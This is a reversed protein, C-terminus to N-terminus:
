LTTAEDEEVQVAHALYYRGLDYEAEEDDSTRCLQTPEIGLWDCLSMFAPLRPVNVGYEWAKISDPSVGMRIGLESRSLRM